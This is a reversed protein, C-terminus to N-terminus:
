SAAHLVVRSFRRCVELLEDQRATDYAAPDADRPRRHYFYKGSVLAAPDDGAALWAQTRYGEELDDPAAPGGMRTAVWGPDVANSFV